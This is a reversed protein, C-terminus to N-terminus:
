FANVVGLPELVANARARVENAATRDCAAELARALDLELCAADVENFDISRQRLIQVVGDGAFRLGSSNREDTVDGICQRGGLCGVRPM